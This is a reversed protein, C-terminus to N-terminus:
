ENISDESLSIRIGRDLLKAIRKNIRSEAENIAKKVIDDSNVKKHFDGAVKSGLMGVLESEVKDAVRKINIQSKVQAALSNYIRDSVNKVIADQMEQTLDVNM